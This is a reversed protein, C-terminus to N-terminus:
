RADEREEARRFRYTLLDNGEADASLKEVVMEVSKGLALRDFPEAFQTLVRVGEPLDVTGYAYPVPGRYFGGAPTQYVITFASITGQRSLKIEELVEGQCHTCVGSTKRPFFVEGCGCCRNGLLRAETEPGGLDLIGFAFPKATKEGSSM